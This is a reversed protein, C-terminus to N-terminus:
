LLLASPLCLTLHHNESPPNYRHAVSKANCMTVQDLTLVFINMQAAKFLQFM